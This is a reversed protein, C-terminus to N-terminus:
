FFENLGHMLFQLPCYCFTLFQNTKELFSPNVAVASLITVDCCGRELGPRPVSQQKKFASLSLLIVTLPAIM